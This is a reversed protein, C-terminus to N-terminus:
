TFSQLVVWVSAMPRRHALPGLPLNCPVSSLSCYSESDLMKVLRLTKGWDM